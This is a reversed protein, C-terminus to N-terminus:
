ASGATYSGRKQIRAIYEERTEKPGAVFAQAKPVGSSAKASDAIIPAFYKFSGPSASKAKAQDIAPKVHREFDYGEAAWAHILSTNATTLAPFQATTYDFVRQFFGTPAAGAEGVRKLQEEQSITYPKHNALAESPEPKSTAQPKATASAIGTEKNKKHKAQAGKIGNERNKQALAMNRLFIKQLNKQTFQNDSYTFFAAVVSKIKQWKAPTTGIYRTVRADDDPLSGGNRWMVMLLKLYAGHEELTLHQTDALYADTYFPMMNLDSM